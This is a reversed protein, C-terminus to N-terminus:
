STTRAAATSVRLAATAAKADGSIAQRRMAWPRDGFRMEHEVTEDGLGDTGKFMEVFSRRKRNRKLYAETGVAAVILLVLGGAVYLITM